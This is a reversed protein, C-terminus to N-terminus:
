WTKRAKVTTASRVKCGELKMTASRVKCGTTTKTYGKCKLSIANRM